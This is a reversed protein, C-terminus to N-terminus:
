FFYKGIAPYVALVLEQVKTNTTSSHVHFLVQLVNPIANQHEDDLVGIIEEVAYYIRIVKLNHNQMNEPKVMLDM